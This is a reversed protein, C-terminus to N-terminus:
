ERYDDYIEISNCDWNIIIRGYKGIFGILEDLSNIEIELKHDTKYFWDGRQTFSFGLEELIEVKEKYCYSDASTLLTFKMITINQITQIENRNKIDFALVGNCREQM